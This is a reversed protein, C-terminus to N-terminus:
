AIEALQHQGLHLNYPFKTMGELVNLSYVIREGSQRVLYTYDQKRFGITEAEAVIGLRNLGDLVSWHYVAARPSNIIHPEREIVLVKVGNQALGLACIFGTPGGGVVVVDYQSDM